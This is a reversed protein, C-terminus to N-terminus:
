KKFATLSFAEGILNMINKGILEDCFKSSGIHFNAGGRYMRSDHFFILGNKKVKPYYLEFDKKVANYTHDGDIFLFDISENEFKSHVNFSYDRIFNFRHKHKDTNESIKNINGILSREMSDPIIPDIGYLFINENINLLFSSTEGNLVGIEIGTIKEEFSYSSLLDSFLKKEADATHPYTEGSLVNYGLKTEM